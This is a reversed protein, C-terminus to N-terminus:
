ETLFVVSVVTVKERGVRNPTTPCGSPNVYVSNPSNTVTVTAQANVRVCQLLWLKKQEVLWLVIHFIHPCLVYMQLFIELLCSIFSPM